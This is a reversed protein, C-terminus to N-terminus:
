TAMNLEDRSYIHPVLVQPKCKLRSPLPSRKVHRRAIGYRFYVSLVHFRIESIRTHQGNPFLYGAIKAPSISHVPVDGMARCFNHLLKEETEYKMGLGRKCAVFKDVSTRLKM